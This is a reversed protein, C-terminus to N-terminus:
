VIEGDRIEDTAKILARMIGKESSSHGADPVVILQARSWAKSLDAASTLPCVMDYRGQVIIGPINHLVEAHDLIFNESLFINNVFYHAEIRALGLAFQDRSFQVVSSHNPILTSCSGEYISWALAAPMHIAPDPDVLRKHYNHLLDNREEFPLHGSFAAWNEPFFSRM